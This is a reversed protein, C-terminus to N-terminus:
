RGLWIMLFALAVLAFLQLWAASSLRADDLLRLDGRFGRALMATHVEGGLQLTKNLLVGVSSVALRRQQAPALPGVLRTQRAELMTRATELFLFIYRYTMALVGVVLGPIRFFHLAYLLRSWLTSLLLLFAFSAATEARLVLFAASREGHPALVLAPAAIAGTFALVPLWVRTALIRVSINSAMALLVALLFLAVLLWLKRVAIASVLLAGLGALKVRPDLHQLFGPQRATDEAFFADQIARLLRHITQEVFGRRRSAPAFLRKLLFVCLVILVVGLAASVIYALSPNHVFGPAYGEFPGKWLSSWRALGAPVQTPFEEISWEGWAAGAALIGFPTLAALLALGPWLSQAPRGHPAPSELIEPSARQLYGVVGASVVFEAVGAFTLHGLMMAPISISLPYPAYLPAGSADHFLIPQIGFEIAACLAALNIAAYGAFGAALLRRVSTIPAKRALLRYVCFATLSGVIAMNFCNAGFATIGGDGFFLAQILLAISIALISMAPGLVIAAVAMGVAHGTTGGPLPLNFMMILFSFAAFVSLLPVARTRLASRVRRLAVYWFPAAAAYLTACTSPSLYGDPIHM